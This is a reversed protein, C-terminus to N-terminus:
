RWQGTLTFAAWYYPSAFDKSHLLSLQAERWAQVRPAGERWRRMFETMLQSTAQDNVKWHSALVSEAGAITFARRLSMVGEGIKVDGAGSECASLIVLETGQLNLLSAELGTLLGDEAVANTVKTAHNAGALALGCRILPNEWDNQGTRFRQPVGLGVLLDAKGSNTFKFEQDSLFFGHTAIHLVRPSVVKKLETERAAAGLRLECEEGLLGAVAQAENGSGPLREFKFGTFSRSLARGTAASTLLSQGSEANQIGREANSHAEERQSGLGLDFDFDPNGFVVSKAPQVNPRTGTTRAAIRAIERGSGVYSISKEEILYRNTAGDPVLLVEFPVRSLQGDPCVILHPVNTLHRALPAYVLASLRQLVPDLRQPAIRKEALLQHWQRVAENIPAAEGLEVREVVLNTSDKALPFTVYAAYSHKQWTESSKATFDARYYHVFDLLASNGPLNRAVDVLTLNRERLRQGVLTIREAIKIELQSLEEQLENRRRERADPELKSEPLRALQVRLSEARTRVEKAATQPDAELAAQVVQAEEALGKNMSLHEAGVVRAEIVNRASCSWCLSHLFWSDTFQREQFALAEESSWWVFEVAFYRRRASFLKAYLSLSRELEKKSQWFEGEFQHHLALNALSTMTHPHELGCTKEFVREAREYYALEAKHDGRLGCTLALDSLASGVQMHEKGFTGELIALSRESLDFAEDYKAQKTLVQAITGLSYAVAPHKGGFQSEIIGLRRRSLRLASDYDGLELRLLALTGLANAVEPHDPGKTKELIELGRQAFAIAEQTVHM